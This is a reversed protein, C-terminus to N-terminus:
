LFLPLSTCSLHLGLRLMNLVDLIHSTTRKSSLVGGCARFNYLNLIKFNRSRGLEERM